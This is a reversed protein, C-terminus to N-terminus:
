YQLPYRQKQSRVKILSGDLSAFTRKGVSKKDFHWTHARNENLHCSMINEWEREKVESTALQIISPCKLQDVKIHSSKAKKMLSGQSLECSQADKLISVYRLSRDSGASLLQHDSSHGYFRVITPPAYHGTRSRVLRPSGDSEDFIWERLANDAGSSLLVSTGSLFQLSGVWGEHASHILHQLKRHELDWCAIDGKSNASVMMTEGDTRFALARFSFLQQDRKLHKLHISGDLLGVGIVDVVPSQALATISQDYTEFEYIKDSAKLNWLQMSGETSAIVMKNLYTSPHLMASIEFGLTLELYLTEEKYNWIRLYGKEHAVILYEGFVLINKVVVEPTACLKGAYKARHWLWVDSGCGTFTIDGISELATIPQPTQDSVFVLKLKEVDYIHFAKGISTTLFYNTGRAQLSFPVQNTVYGLIRYPAFVKSAKQRHINGLTKSERNVM